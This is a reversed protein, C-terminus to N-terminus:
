FLVPLQLAPLHSEAAHQQCNAGSCFIAAPIM